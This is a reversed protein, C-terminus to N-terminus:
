ICFSHLDSDGSAGVVVSAETLDPNIRWLADAVKLWLSGDEAMRLEADFVSPGSSQIIVKWEDGAKLVLSEGILVLLSGDPLVKIAKAWAIQNPNTIESLLDPPFQIKKVVTGDYHVLGEVCGFWLTGDETEDMCLIGMDRLAEEGRWRWPELIPISLKPTYPQVAACWIPFLLCYFIFCRKM